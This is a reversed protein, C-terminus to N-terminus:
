HRVLPPIGADRATVVVTTSGCGPYTGSMNELRQAGYALEPSRPRNADSPDPERVIIALMRLPADGCESGAGTTSPHWSM